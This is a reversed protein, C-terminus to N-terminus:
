ECTGANCTGTSSDECDEDEDCGDGDNGLVCNGDGCHLSLCQNDDICEDNTALESPVCRCSHEGIVTGFECTFAEDDCTCRLDDDCFADIPFGAAACEEDDGSPCAQPSDLELMPLCVNGEGEDEPDIRICQKGTTCDSQQECSAGLGVPPIVCAGTAGIVVSVALGTVLRRMTM